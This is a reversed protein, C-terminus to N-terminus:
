KTQFCGKASIIDREIAGIPAKNEKNVKIVPENHPLGIHPVQHTHSALNVEM